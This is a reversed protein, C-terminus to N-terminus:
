IDYPLPYPIIPRFKSNQQMYNHYQTTNPSVWMYELYLMTQIWQPENNIAVEKSSATSHMGMGNNHLKVLQQPEINQKQLKVIM